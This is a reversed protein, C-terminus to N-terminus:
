CRIIRGLDIITYTTDRPQEVTRGPRHVVYALPPIISKPDVCTRLSIRLNERFLYDEFEAAILQDAKSKAFLIIKSLPNGTEDPDSDIRRILKLIERHVEPADRRLRKLKSLAPKAISGAM